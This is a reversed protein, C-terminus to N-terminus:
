SGKETRSRATPGLGANDAPADAMRPLCVRLTVPRIHYELPPRLRFVEGDIAVHMKWRHSEILCNKLRFSEFDRSQELRGCLARLTLQFISWRTQANAVYLSLEGKNLSVRTGINFLDLQYVNNGVFVLPTKRLVTGADTTLRVTVLPFLRFVKLMAFLMATWKSLGHREQQAERDLVMMPYLGLSSNNIFVRDNVQGVDISVFNGAGIVRVAEALDLPIGLDKAFHNLTGLPLVGLPMNTGALVGAVTSLTGDGGGVIVVDVNSQAAEKAASELDSGRVRRVEAEIGAAILQEQLVQDLQQDQPDPVSGANANLLVIARMGGSEKEVLEIIRGVRFEGSCLRSGIKRGILIIRLGVLLAVPVSIKPKEAVLHGHCSLVSWSERSPM